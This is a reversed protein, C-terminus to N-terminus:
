MSTLTETLRPVEEKSGSQEEFTRLRPPTGEMGLETWRAAIREYVDRRILTRPSFKKLFKHQKCANIIAQSGYPRDEPPNKSPDLGTSWTSRLIDIDREPSCRTSIAWLVQGIDTPDVDDDVVVILKTIYAGAPVQAALAAVQAAHGPYRQEVSVVTMCYGGAAEPPCYVGRVGPVGLQDLQSWIGASRVIANLIGLENARGDAMLACTLIPNRRFRVRQVDIIPTHEAAAGYYGTFEGFPGERGERGKHMFGEVIIEASSPLDLGTLDSRFVKVPEGVMGGAYDYESEVKPLTCCGMIQLVPDCGFVAAVPFPLGQQWYKECQLRADKGPSWHCFLERPGQIMQRYTGVNLHQDELDRTVLIDWTGLYRGGDRPWMKPSPFKWLDIDVGDLIVENVPSEELPIKKPPIKTGFKVKTSEILNQISLGSPHGLSMAIRNKGTGFLNFVASSGYDADKVNKFWLVPANEEQAVLYNLAGMEEDWDVLQPIVKLEGFSEVERLLQRLSLV